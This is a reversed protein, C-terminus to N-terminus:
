VYAFLHCLIQGIIVMNMSISMINKLISCKTQMQNIIHTGHIVKLHLFVRIQFISFKTKVKKVMWSPTNFEIGNILQKNIDLINMVYM